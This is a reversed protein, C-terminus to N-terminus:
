KGKSKSKSKEKKPTEKEKKKSPLDKVKKFIGKEDRKFIAGYPSHLEMTARTLMTQLYTRKADPFERYIKAKIEKATFKEALLYEKIRTNVTPKGEEAYRRVREGSMYAQGAKEKKIIKQSEHFAQILTCLCMGSVAEDTFDAYDMLDLKMAETEYGSEALRKVLADKKMKKVTDLDMGLVKAAIENLGQRELKTTDLKAM